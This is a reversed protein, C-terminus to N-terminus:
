EGIRRKTLFVDTYVIMIIYIIFLLNFLISSSYSLTFLKTTIGIIAFMLSLAVGVSLDNIIITQKNLFKNIYFYKIAFLPIISGLFLCGILIRDFLTYFYYLSISAGLIVDNLIVVDISRNKM